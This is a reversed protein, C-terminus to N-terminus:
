TLWKVMHDSTSRTDVESRFLVLEIGMFVIPPYKIALHLDHFLQADKQQKTSLGDTKIGLGSDYYQSEIKSELKKLDTYNIILRNASSM